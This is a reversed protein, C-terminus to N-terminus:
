AVTNAFDASERVAHRVSDAYRNHLITFLWAWLNTGPQWLHIKAVARALAEQVLDNADAPDRTLSLAYRRLDPLVAAIEAALDGAITKKVSGNGAGRAPCHARRRRVRANEPDAGAM